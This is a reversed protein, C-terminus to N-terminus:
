RGPAQGVGFSRFEDLSLGGDNNRDLVPMQREILRRLGQPLEGPELRGNRNQDSYGFMQQTRALAYDHLPNDVTEDRWRFRVSGYLMEDWSQQCWPVRRAPDPNAPNQASNDYVTTHILKSGAPVAVPEVFVYDRQWNFDYKPVSLLTEVRGDPYELEFRSSRGRYHAHPFLSYLIADKDFPIYATEEDTANFPEISIQPNLAVVNRL